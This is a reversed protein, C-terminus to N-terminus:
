KMIGEKNLWNHYIKANRSHEEGTAAFNHAGVYGPKACMYILNHKTANLTKDITNINPMCIPGPPLGAHMYTNYPTDQALHKNLVRRITFDGIGYVVTPDAQLKMGQQLRNLYLGAITDKESRKRSEKEVISALTYVEEKSLGLADAKKIRAKTWFKEHEKEMRKLFGEKSTNWFFEYTNPIFLTMFNYQNYGKISRLEPDNLYNLLTLSDPQIYKSVAGALEAISKVNNFTVDLPKQIGSRLVQIIKRNSYHKEILYRGSKVIPKKYKMLGAVRDFSQPNDLIDQDKLIKFVDDYSSETPILIIDSKLDDNVNDHYIWGYAVYACIMGIAILVCLGYIFTKSFINM